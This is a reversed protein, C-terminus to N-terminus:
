GLQRHRRARGRSRTRRPRRVPVAQRIDRVLDLMAQDVEGLLRGWEDVADRGPTGHMAGLERAVTERWAEDTIAGTVARELLAPAFAIRDISGSPLGHRREISRTRAPPWRRLVGDLDVIVARIV